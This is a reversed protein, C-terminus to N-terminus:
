NQKGQQWDSGTGLDEVALPDRNVGRLGQLDSAQYPPAMQVILLGHVAGNCKLV